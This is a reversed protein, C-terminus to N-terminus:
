CQPELRSRLYALDDRPRGKIFGEVEAPSLDLKDAIESSSFGKDAYMRSYEQDFYPGRNSKRRDGIALMLAEARDPSASRRARADDKSEIKLRGRSDYENPSRCTSRR